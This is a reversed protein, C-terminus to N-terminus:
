YLRHPVSCVRLALSLDADRRMHTRGCLRTAHNSGGVGTMGRTARPRLALLALLIATVRGGSSMGVLKVHM